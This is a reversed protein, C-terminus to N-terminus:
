HLTVAGQQEEAQGPVGVDVSQPPKRSAALPESQGPVHLPNPDFRGAFLPDLLYNPRRARCTRQGMVLVQEEPALRLIEEASYCGTIAAFDAAMVSNRAGFLQLHCNNLFTPWELPYLGKLQSMDQWFTWVRLGYSRLLTVAHLLLELRGLQAAEDIFLTTRSQPRNRRLTVACLLMGLWLRLLSRHSGLKTPPIVLFIALQQGDIFDQLDFSSSDTARRVAKSGFLRTHQSASSLVSPRTDREPHGLFVAVEQRADPHQITGSDMMRALDLMCDISAFIKRLESICRLRPECDAILYTILGSLFAKSTNDWFVDRHNVQGGALLETLTRAIDEPEESSVAALDLPNLSDSADGTVGFPDILVTRYGVSRLHRKSIAWNEGKPDVVILQGSPALLNPLICGVGKGAGTPAITAIHAEESAHIPGPKHTRTPPPSSPAFGISTRQEECSWGLLPGSM